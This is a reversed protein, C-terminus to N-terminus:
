LGSGHGVESVETAGNMLDVFARKQANSLRYFREHAARHTKADGLPLPTPASVEAVFDALSVDIMALIQLLRAASVRNIGKEYKMMQQYSVGLTASMEQQTKGLINRQRRLWHGIRLDVESARKDGSM